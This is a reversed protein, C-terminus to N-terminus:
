ATTVLDCLVLIGRRGKKRITKVIDSFNLEKRLQKVLHVTRPMRITRPAECADVLKDVSNVLNMAHTLSDIERYLSISPLVLLQIHVSFSVNNMAQEREDILRIYMTCVMVLVM